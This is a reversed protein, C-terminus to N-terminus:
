PVEGGMRSKLTSAEPLSASARCARCGAVKKWTPWPGEDLAPLSLSLNCISNLCNSASVSLKPLFCPRAELRTARLLRRELCPSRPRLYHSAVHNQTGDKACPSRHPRLAAAEVVLHWNSYLRGLNLSQFNEKRPM